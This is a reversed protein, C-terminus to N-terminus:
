VEKNIAKLIVSAHCSRRRYINSRGMAGPKFYRRMPGNDIKIESIILDAQELNNLNKANGAASEILKKIPLARKIPCVSLWQLAKPVTKGRVVDALPRLKYPSFSLFRAKANFQMNFGLLSEM